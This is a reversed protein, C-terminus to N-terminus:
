VTKKIILTESHIFIQTQLFSSKKLLRLFPYSMLLWKPFIQHELQVKGKIRKKLMLKEWNNSEMM